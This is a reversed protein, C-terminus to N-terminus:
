NTRHPGATRGRDYAGAAVGSLPIAGMVVVAHRMALSVQHSRISTESAPLRLRASRIAIVEFSFTSIAAGIKISVQAKAANLRIRGSPYGVM